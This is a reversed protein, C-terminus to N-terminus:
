SPTELRVRVTIAPPAARRAELRGDSRAGLDIQWGLQEFGLANLKHSADPWPQGRLWDLLAALPLPEGLLDSALSDLDAYRREGQDSVLLVQGPQWDARAATTGLPTFLSFQGRSADGHLEFPASFSRAPQGQHAEVRLALRGALAATPAPTTSCATLLGLGAACAAVRRRV